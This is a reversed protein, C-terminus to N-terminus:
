DLKKTKTKKKKKFWHKAQQVKQGEGPIQQICYCEPLTLYFRKNSECQYAIQTRVIVIVEPAKGWFNLVKYDSSSFSGQIFGDIIVSQKLVIVKVNSLM